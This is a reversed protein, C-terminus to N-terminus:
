YVKILILLNIFLIAIAIIVQVVTAITRVVEFNTRATSKPVWYKENKEKM